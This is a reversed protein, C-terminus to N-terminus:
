LQFIYWREKVDIQIDVTYGRFEKLSVTVENFLRTNVLHERSQIFYLTLQQLTLSDGSKFPLEREIIFSKTVRNGHIFVNGVMFLQGQGPSIIIVGPPLTDNATPPQSRAAPPQRSATPPQSNATPPEDIVSSRQGHVTSRQGNITSREANQTLREANLTLREANLTPRLVIMLLFLLLYKDPKRIMPKM